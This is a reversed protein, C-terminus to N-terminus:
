PDINTIRRMTTMPTLIIPTRFHGIPSPTRLHRVPASVDPSSLQGLRGLVPDPSLRGDKGGQSGRLGTTYLSHTGEELNYGDFKKVVKM